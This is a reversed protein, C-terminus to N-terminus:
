GEVGAGIRKGVENEGGLNERGGMKKDEFDLIGKQDMERKSLKASGLRYNYFM